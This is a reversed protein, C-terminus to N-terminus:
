TYRVYTSPANSQKFQGTFLLTNLGLVSANGLRALNGLASINDCCIKGFATNVKYFQTDATIMTQLAVLGLLEGRYLGAKPSMEFFSGWTRNGVTRSAYKYADMINSCSAYNYADMIYSCSAYEYADMIYLRSPYEYADMIYSCSAYEYADM